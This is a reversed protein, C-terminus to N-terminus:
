IKIRQLYFRKAEQFTGQFVLQNKELVIGELCLEELLNTEHASILLTLEPKLKLYSIFLERQVEDLGIFPEDLLLIPPNSIISRLLLIKNKQGFSLYKFKIKALDLCSFKKMLDLTKQKDQAQLPKFPHYSAYLGTAIIQWAKLDQDFYNKIEPSFFGLNKERINRPPLNQGKFILEGGKLPYIEGKVLKFFTTKGSGNPGLIALKAGEKINLEEVELLTKHERKVLCKKLSLLTPSSPLQSSFKNKPLTTKPNTCPVLTQDKICLYNVPFPFDIKQHSTLVLAAKHTQLYKSLLQILDQSAKPDLNLFLEDLFLFQPKSFFTRALLVKRAEGTSLSFFDRELFPTLGLFSTLQKLEEPLSAFSLTPFIEGKLGSALIEQVKFNLEQKWYFDVDEPKLYSVYPRLTLPSHSYTNNLYYIRTKIEEPKPSLYGLLFDLLSSKGSGNPGLIFFHKGSSITLSIDKLLLKDQRYINAKKIEIKM